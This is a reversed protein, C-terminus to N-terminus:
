VQGRGKLHQAYGGDNRRFGSDLPTPCHPPARSTVTLGDYTLDHVAGRRSACPSAFLLSRLPHRGVRSFGAGRADGMGCLIRAGTVNMLWRSVSMIM